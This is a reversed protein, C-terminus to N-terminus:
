PLWRFLKLKKDSDSSELRNLDSRKELENKSIILSYLKILIPIDAESLRKNSSLKFKNFFGNDFKM